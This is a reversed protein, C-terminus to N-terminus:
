FRRRSLGTLRSAVTTQFRQNAFRTAKWLFKTARTGPHRVRRRFIIGGSTQFRLAKARRAVIEHPKTGDEVYRAYKVANQIRVVAGRSTRVFQHKTSRGLFGTRKPANKAAFSEANAGAQHLGEHVIREVESFFADHGRRLRAVNWM